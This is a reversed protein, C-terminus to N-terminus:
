KLGEGKALFCFGEIKAAGINLDGQPDAAIQQQIISKVRQYDSIQVEDENHHASKHSLM